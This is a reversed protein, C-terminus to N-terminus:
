SSQRGLPSLSLVFSDKNNAKDIRKESYEKTSLNRYEDSAKYDRDWERFTYYKVGVHAAYPRVSVPVRSAQLEFYKRVLQAKEENEYKM